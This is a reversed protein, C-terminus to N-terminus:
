VDSRTIIERELKELQRVADPIKLLWVPKAPM